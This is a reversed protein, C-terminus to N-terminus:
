WGTTPGQQEVDVESQIAVVSVVMGLGLEQDLAVSLFLPNSLIRKLGPTLYIHNWLPDRIPETYDESLHRLIAASRRNM